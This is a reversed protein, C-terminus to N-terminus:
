PSSRLGFQGNELTGKGNAGDHTGAVTLDVTTGADFRTYWIQDIGLQDLESWEFVNPDSNVPATRFGDEWVQIADPQLGVRAYDAPTRGLGNVTLAGGPAASTPPASM